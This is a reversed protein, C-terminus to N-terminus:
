VPGVVGARPIGADGHAMEQEGGSDSRQDRDHESRGRRPCIFILDPQGQAQPVDTGRNAIPGGVPDAAPQHQSPAQVVDERNTPTEVVANVGPALPGRLVTPHQTSFQEVKQIHQSPHGIEPGASRAYRPQYVSVELRVDPQKQDTTQLVEPLPLQDKAELHAPQGHRSGRLILEGLHEHHEARGVQPFDVLGCGDGM